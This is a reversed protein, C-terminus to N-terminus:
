KRGVFCKECLTYTWEPEFCHEGYDSIGYDNLIIIAKQNQKIECKCGDCINNPIFKSDNYPYAIEDFFKKRNM